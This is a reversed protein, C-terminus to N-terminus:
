VQQIFNSPLQILHHYYFTPSSHNTFVQPQPLHDKLHAITSRTHLQKYKYCHHFYINMFSLLAKLSSSYSHINIHGLIIRLVLCCLFFIITPLIFSDQSDNFVTSLGQSYKATKRWYLETFSLRTDATNILKTLSHLALDPDNDKM